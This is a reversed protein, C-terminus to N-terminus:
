TPGKLQRVVEVARGVTEFVSRYLEPMDASPRLERRLAALRALPDRDLAFATAAAEFINASQDDAPAPRGALYLLTALEIALPRAADALVRALVVADGGAAVYRRRLRLLLNGLEQEVRLRVQERPVEIGAFPDAGALVVHHNKIDLFKTPFAAAFGAVEGPTLLLPEVAVAREASRLAPSVATLAAAGADHLLVVLNVDSKGPRYRGRALGGYLILGALNPGAARTLEDRLRELAATVAEPAGPLPPLM